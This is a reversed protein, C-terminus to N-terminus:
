WCLTGKSHLSHWASFGLEARIRRSDRACDYGRSYMAQFCSFFLRRLRGMRHLVKLFNRCSM